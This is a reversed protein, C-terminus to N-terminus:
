ADNGMSDEQLIAPLEHRERWIHVINLHLQVEEDRELKLTSVIWQTITEPVCEHWGFYEWFGAHDSFTPVLNVYAQTINHVDTPCSIGVAFRVMWGKDVDLLFQYHDFKDTAQWRNDDVVDDKFTLTIVGYEHIIDATTM